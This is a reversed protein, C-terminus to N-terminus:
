LRPRVSFRKCHAGPLGSRPHEAGSRAEQGLRSGWLAQIMREGLISRDRMGNLRLGVTVNEAISMTPFPNSKQFVMGVRRRVVVAEVQRSYIDQGFLRVQGEVRAIPVLDHM